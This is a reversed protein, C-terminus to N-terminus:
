GKSISNNCYVDIHHDYIMQLVDRHTECRVLNWLATNARSMKMRQKMYKAWISNVHFKQAIRKLVKSSRTLHMMYEALCDDTLLEEAFIRELKALDVLANAVKVTREQLAILEVGCLKEIHGSELEFKALHEGHCSIRGGVVELELSLSQRALSDSEFKHVKKAAVFNGIGYYIPAGRYVEHGSVYHSHHWIIASAGCDVYFRSQRVQRPTPYYCYELGGHLILIVINANAKAERITEV